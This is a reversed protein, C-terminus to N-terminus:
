LSRRPTRRLSARRAPSARRVPQRIRRRPPSRGTPQVLSVVISGDYGIVQLDNGGTDPAVFNLNELLYIGPPTGPLIDFGCTYLIGDPIPSNNYPPGQVFLRVTTLSPNLGDVPLTSAVFFKALAPNLTCNAVPDLSVATRPLRIDNATGAVLFGNSALAVQVNLTDGGPRHEHLVNIQASSPIPTPTPGILTVVAGGDAGETAHCALPIRPSSTATSFRIPVPLTGAQVHFQCTYLIGDPIISTPALGGEVRVQVTTTTATMAVRQANLSKSIAPNLKCQTM